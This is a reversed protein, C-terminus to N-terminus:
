ANNNNPKGFKNIILKNGAVSVGLNMAKANATLEGLYKRPPSLKGYCINSNLDKSDAIKIKLIAVLYIIVLVCFSSVL